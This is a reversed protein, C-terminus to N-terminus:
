RTGLPTQNTPARVTRLTPAECLQPQNPDKYNRPRRHHAPDSRLNGLCACHHICKRCRQCILATQCAVVIASSEGYKGVQCEAPVSLPVPKDEGKRKLSTISM